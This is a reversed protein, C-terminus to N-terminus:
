DDLEGRGQRIIEPYGATLDVVTSAENNGFGGDIVIDVKDKYKEYILEPDTTYELVEDDDHVSTSIIPNGFNEVISRCISNDPVRIGLTRKKNKFLKPISNNAELIFTFAGPLNRKLLKFTASDFQKTYESIQSLDYFVFSFDAKDAKIGKINAVREIASRSNIDCGIAYITDTPYIIVGGSQLCQSIRKLDKPNTNNDYLKLLM